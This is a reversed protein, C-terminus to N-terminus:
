YSYKYIKVIHQREKESWETLDLLKEKPVGRRKLWNCMFVVASADRQENLAQKCAENRASLEAQTPLTAKTM